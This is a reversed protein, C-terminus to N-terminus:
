SNLSLILMGTEEGAWRSQPATQFGLDRISSCFVCTFTLADMFIQCEYHDFTHAKLFSQSAGEGGGLTHHLFKGRRLISEQGYALSEEWERVHDWFPHMGTRIFM